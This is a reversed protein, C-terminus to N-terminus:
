PACCTPMFDTCRTQKLLFSKVDEACISDFYFLRQTESTLTGTFDAFQKGFKGRLYCIELCPKLCWFPINKMRPIMCTVNTVSDIKSKGVALRSELPVPVRAFVLAINCLVHGSLELQLYRPLLHPPGRLTSPKFPSAM